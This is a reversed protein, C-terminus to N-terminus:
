FQKKVADANQKRRCEVTYQYHKALGDFAADIARVGAGRSLDTNATKDLSRLYKVWKRLLLDAALCNNMMIRLTRYRDATDNKSADLEDLLQSTEVVASKLTAVVACVLDGFNRMSTDFVQHHVEYEYRRKNQEQVQHSLNGGCFYGAHQSSHEPHLFELLRSAHQRENVRGNQNGCLDAEASQLASHAQHAITLLEALKAGQPHKSNICDIFDVSWVKRLDVEPSLHDLYYRGPIVLDTTYPHVRSSSPLAEVLARYATCQIKYGESSSIDLKEGDDRCHLESAMLLRSKFIRKLWEASRDRINEHAILADAIANSIATRGDMMANRSTEYALWSSTFALVEEDYLVRLRTLEEPNDLAAEIKDSWATPDIRKLFQSTSNSAMRVAEVFTQQQGMAEELQSLAPHLQSFLSSPANLPGKARDRTRDTFWWGRGSFQKPPAKTKDM